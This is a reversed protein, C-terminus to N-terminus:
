SVRIINPLGQQLSFKSCNGLIQKDFLKVSVLNITFYPNLFCLAYM